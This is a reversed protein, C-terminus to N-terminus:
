SSLANLNESKQIIYFASRQEEPNSKVKDIENRYQKLIQVATPNDRNAIYAKEIRTELPKYYKIWWVDKPLKFHNTLRYGWSSTAELKNADIDIADHIVLFGHPKLLRHWEKVSKEFGMIRIVGEAWIIDFHEDPFDIERLSCVVTKVRNSFGKDEIKRDLKELQSRDIDIGIIVGDSLKALELTPLGSGCGIDLIHPKDLKPLLQFARRTYKILRERFSDLNIESLIDQTM